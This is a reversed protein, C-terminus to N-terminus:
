FDDQNLFHFGRQVIRLPEFDTLTETTGGGAATVNNICGAAALITM